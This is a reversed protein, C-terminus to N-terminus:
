DKSCGWKPDLIIFVQQNSKKFPLINACSAEALSIAPDDEDKQVDV